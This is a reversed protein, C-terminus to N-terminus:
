AVITDWFAGLDASVLKMDMAMQIEVRDSELHEMRFRKIRTGLAQAGMFGSWSFTYGATPTMLGPSPAAYFLGAKKGGIWAHTNTLGEAATNEIASTVLVEEVEFLAALASATVIAPRDNGSTYKIRDIIDPHEGLATMVPRGLVLKNPRFGTLLQIADAANKVDQVPTSAADNWQLVQGAGPSASVGDYDSTWIGGTFYKSVFLKEKRILAKHSLFETAERDPDLAADTNSRVQDHVDKHLAWVNAFYTPTNDIGYGGGASETGPARIEMDDRNFDGRDYTYYRDSQKSVPVNPFVRGAVFNAPNQMYAVSINTLPANVHVDGPTPKSM